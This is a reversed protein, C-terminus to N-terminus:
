EGSCCRVDLELRGVDLEVGSCGIEGHSPRLSELCPMPDWRLNWPFYDWGLNLNDGSLNGPLPDWRLDWPM